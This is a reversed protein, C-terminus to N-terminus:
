HQGGGEQKASSLAHWGSIASFDRKYHFPDERSANSQKNMLSSTWVFLKVSSLQIWDKQTQRKSALGKRVRILFM